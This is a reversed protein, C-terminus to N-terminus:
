RTEFFMGRYILDQSVTIKALFRSIKQFVFFKKPIKAMKPGERSRYTLPSKESYWLRCLTGVQFPFSTSM